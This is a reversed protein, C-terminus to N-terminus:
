AYSRTDENVYCKKYTSSLRELCKKFKNLNIYIKNVDFLDTFNFKSRIYSMTGQFHIASPFDNTNGSHDPHGHTTIVYDVSKPVINNKELM